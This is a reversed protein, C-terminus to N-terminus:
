ADVLAAVHHVLGGSSPVVHLRQSLVVMLRAAHSMNGNRTATRPASAAVAM